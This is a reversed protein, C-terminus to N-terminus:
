YTVLQQEYTAEKGPSEGLREETLTSLRFPTKGNFSLDTFRSSAVRTDSEVVFDMPKRQVRVFLAAAEVRM